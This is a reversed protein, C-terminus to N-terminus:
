KANESTYSTCYTSTNKLRNFYEGKSESLSLHVSLCVDWLTTVSQCLCAYTRVWVYFYCFDNVHPMQSILKCLILSISSCWCPGTCPKTNDTVPATWLHKHFHGEEKMEGKMSRRRKRREDLCGATMVTESLINSLRDMAPRYGGHAENVESIVSSYTPSLVSFYCMLKVVDVFGQLTQILPM